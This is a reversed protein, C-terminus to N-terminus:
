KAEGLRLRLLVMEQKAEIKAIREGQTQIREDLNGTHDTLRDSRSALTYVDPLTLALTELKVLRREVSIDREANKANSVLTGVAAGIGATLLMVGVQTFIKKSDPDIM